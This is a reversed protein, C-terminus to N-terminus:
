FPIIQRVVDCRVNNVDRHAPFGYMTTLVHIDEIFKGTVHNM